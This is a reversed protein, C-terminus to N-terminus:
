AATEPAGEAPEPDGEVPVLTGAGVPRALAPGGVASAATTEGAAEVDGPGGEDALAAAEEDRDTESM